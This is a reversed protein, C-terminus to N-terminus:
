ASRAQSRAAVLELAVSLGHAIPANPVYRGEAIDRLVHVIAAVDTGHRASEAAFYSSEWAKSAPHRENSDFRAHGHDRASARAGRRPTASAHCKAAYAAHARAATDQVARPTLHAYIQTTRVDTHGLVKSVDELSWRMGWWGSVLSSACTHRLLHWWPARGIRPVAGFAEVVAAWSRPPKVRRSGRETPFLLGLPNKPAYLPLQALWEKASALALGFLPVVRARKEGKRGKPSRYRKKVPDWSGFRVVVHPDEGDVHVDALHLCWQEGERLGTGLAFAVIAKERRRTDKLKDWCALFRKQDDADLYWSEQYGGDEDGDQREVTLGAFPNATVVEHEVAWAFFARALNLCHKRTQWSLKECRRGGRRKPDSNPPPETRRRRLEKLWAAGDARTVSALQRRAWSATAVHRHWRGTDDDVSRNDARSALFRPGLEKASKGHTPALDGDIIRRKFEDRLQRADDVTPVTGTVLEGRYRVRVRYSGSPLPEICNMDDSV